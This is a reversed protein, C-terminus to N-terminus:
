DITFFWFRVLDNLVEMRSLFRTRSRRDGVLTVGFVDPYQIPELLGPSFLGNDLVLVSVQGSSTLDSESIRPLAAKTAKAVVEEKLEIKKKKEEEGPGHNQFLGPENKKVREESAVPKSKANLAFSLPAFPKRPTRNPSTSYEVVTEKGSKVPLADLVPKRSPKTHVRPKM